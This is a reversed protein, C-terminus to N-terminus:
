NIMNVSENDKVTKKKSTYVSIPTDMLYKEELLQFLHELLFQKSMSRRSDRVFSKGYVHV